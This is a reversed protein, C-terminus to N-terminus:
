ASGRSSAAVRRRGAGGEGTGGGEAEGRPAARAGPCGCPLEAAEGARGAAEVEEEEVEEPQPPRPSTRPCLYIFLEM